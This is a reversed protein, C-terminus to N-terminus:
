REKRPHRGWGVNTEMFSRLRPTGAYLGGIVVAGLFDALLDNWEFYREPNRLQHLEDGLGFLTTLLVGMVWADLQGWRLFARAIGTAIAGFVCFHAVKDMGVFSMPGLQPGPTGSIWTVTVMLAVPWGLRQWHVTKLEISTM